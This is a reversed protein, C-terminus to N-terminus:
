MVARVNFNFFPKKFFPEQYLSGYVQMSRLVRKVYGRTEDLPIAEIFEDIDSSPRARLWKKVNGPGANYAMIALPMQDSFFSKMDSLYTSGLIINSKPDTLDTLINGNQIKQRLSQATAPMLQMLGTAGVWSRVNKQFLSEERMIGEIAGRPLHTSAYGYTTQQAYARPYFASFMPDSSAMTPGYVGSNFHSAAMDLAKRYNHCEIFKKTIYEEHNSEWDPHQQIAIDMVASADDHLDKHNLADVVGLAADDDSPAIGGLSPLGPVKVTTGLRNAALVAYFSFPFEAVIKKYGQSAKGLADKSKIKEWARSQWYLTKPFSEDPTPASSTVQEFIKIAKKYEGKKYFPYAADFVYENRMDGQHFSILKTAYKQAELNNGSKEYYHELTYLADDALRHDPYTKYLRTLAVVGIDEQHSALTIKGLWYLGRATLDESCGFQTLQSFAEKSADGQGTNFRLGNGLEYLAQCKDDKSISASLIEGTTVIGPIKKYQYVFHLRHLLYIKQEASLVISADTAPTSDPVNNDFSLIDLEAADEPAEEKLTTLAKFRVQRYRQYLDLYASEGFSLEPRPRNPKDKLLTLVQRNEGHTLLVEALIVNKWLTFIGDEVLSAQRQAGDADGSQILSDATKLKFYDGIIGPKDALKDPRLSQLEDFGTEFDSPENKSANTIAGALFLFCTFLFCSIRKAM